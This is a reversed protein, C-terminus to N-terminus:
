LGCRPLRRNLTRRREGLALTARLRRARSRELARRFMTHTYPPASDRRLVRRGARFTARRVADLDGLLRIRLRGDGICRRVLRQDRSCGPVGPVACLVAEPIRAAEIQKPGDGVRVRAVERRARYSVVSLTDARTNAVFCLRGDPGTAAWGPADDVDITALPRLGDTSVLAVYDSARGAACLTREDGSIALGHHPAEFDFDEETVGPDVPLEVERVIRGQQLDFEVIGHFLSLQAYMRREDHTLVIPRIGREFSYTRLTRLDDTAVVTLRYPEPPMARRAMEPAVITGISANYLRRGDESLHNDHPWQGTAFSSVVARAATDVVVVVNQTLASVYLFRGDDTITMHDSRFGPISVKWQLAGTAVDFAAVDGRHGRSVYLTRGDPALDQDQAYNRGGAAEIVKQRALAQVPDDEGFAADAGDPLVGIERLVRFTRADVVSVTGGEANAVLVVDRGLAPGQPASAAASGELLSALACALIICRIGAM